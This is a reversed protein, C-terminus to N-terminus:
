TISYILNTFDLNLKDTIALVLVGGEVFGLSQYESETETESEEIFDPSSSVM